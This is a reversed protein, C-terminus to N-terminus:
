GLMLVDSITKGNEFVWYPSVADKLLIVKTGTKFIDYLSDLTEFSIICGEHIEDRELDWYLQDPWHEIRAEYSHNIGQKLWEKWAPNDEIREVAPLLDFIPEGNSDLVLNGLSDRKAKASSSVPSKRKITCTLHKRKLNAIRISVGSFGGIQMTSIAYSYPYPYTEGSSNIETFLVFEFM